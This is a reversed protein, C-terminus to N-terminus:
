TDQLSFAKDAKAMNIELLVTFSEASEFIELKHAGPYTAEMRKRANAIGTGTGAQEPRSSISNYFKAKLCSNAGISVIIAITSETRTSVGYKFCNEAFPILLMPAIYFQGSSAPYRFSASTKSTLRMKQLNIYKGLFELEKCLPVFDASADAMTYRMIDSLQLTAEAAKEDRNAALYYISNLTNFLFHPNVQSKLLALEAKSRELEALEHRKRYRLLMDAVAISTSFIYVLVFLIHRVWTFSQFANSRPGRGTRPRGAIDFPAALLKPIYFYFAFLAVIAICYLIIRNRSGILKPALYLWNAYFMAVLWAMSLMFINQSFFRSETSNANLWALLIFVSWGALHSTIKLGLNGRPQEEMM